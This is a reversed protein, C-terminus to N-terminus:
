GVCYLASLNVVLMACTLRAINGAFINWWLLEHALLPHQELLCPAHEQVRLLNTIPKRPNFSLSADLWNERRFLSWESLLVLCFTIFNLALCATQFETLSHTNEYVSCTHESPDLLSAGCRQPVFVCLLAAFVGQFLGRLGGIFTAAINLRNERQEVQSQVSLLEAALADKEEQSYSTFEPTEREAELKEYAEVLERPAYLRHLFNLGPFQSESGASALESKKNRHPSPERAHLSPNAPVVGLPEAVGNLPEAHGMAELVIDAVSPRCAAEARANVPPESEAALPVRAKDDAEGGLQQELTPM